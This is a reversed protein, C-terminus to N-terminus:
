HTYYSILFISLFFHVEIFAPPLMEPQREELSSLPLIGASASVVNRQFFGNESFTALFKILIEGANAEKAVVKRMALVLVFVAHSSLGGSYVQGLGREFLYQKIVLVVPGIRLDQTLVNRVYQAALLGSHSPSSISLDVKILVGSVTSSFKLVPPSGM